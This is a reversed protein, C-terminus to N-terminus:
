FFPVRSYLFGKPFGDIKPELNFEVQPADFTSFRMELLKEGWWVSGESASSSFDDSNQLDM